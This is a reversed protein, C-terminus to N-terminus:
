KHSLAMKRRRVPCAQSVGATACLGQGCSIKMLINLFKEQFRNAHNSDEKFIFFMVMNPSICDSVM